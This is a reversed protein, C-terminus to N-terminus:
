YFETIGLFICFLLICSHLQIVKEVSRLIKKLYAFICCVYKQLLTSYLLEWFYALLFM